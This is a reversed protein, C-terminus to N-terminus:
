GQAEEHGSWALPEWLKKLHDLRPQLYAIVQPEIRERDLPHIAIEVWRYLGKRQGMFFMLLTDTGDENEAVAQWDWRFLLNMDMDADGEEAVFDTWRAYAEYPQPNSAYYNAQECYYDHEVEWLHKM